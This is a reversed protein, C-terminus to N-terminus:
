LRYKLRDYITAALLSKLVDGIVFPIFGLVFAESYSIGLLVKLWLSGLILILMSVFIFSIILQFLSRTRRAVFVGLIFAALVFGALYGATPGMIAQWGSVAGTFLPLGIIGLSIYIIQTVSGNKKLMVGSLLVFFTQMTLPVPTFFLPVRIYAGIATLFVFIGVGLIKLLSLPLVIQVGLLDKLSKINLDLTKM